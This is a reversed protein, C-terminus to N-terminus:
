ALMAVLERLTRLPKRLLKDVLTGKKECEVKQSASLMDLNGMPGATTPDFVPRLRYLRQGAHVHRNLSGTEFPQRTRSFLQPVGLLQAKDRTLPHFRYHLDSRGLEAAAIAAVPMTRQAEYIQAYCEILDTEKLRVPDSLQPAIENKIQSFPIELYLGPEALIKRYQREPVPKETVIRAGDAAHVQPRPNSADSIKNKSGSQVQPSQDSRRRENSSEGSPRQDKGVQRVVTPYSVQFIRGREDRVLEGLPHLQKGRVEYFHGAEDVVVEGVSRLGVRNRDRGYEAPQLKLSPAALEHRAEVAPRSHSTRRNTVPAQPAATHDRGSLTRDLRLIKLRRTAIVGPRMPLQIEEHIALM